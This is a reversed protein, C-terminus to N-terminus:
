LSLKCIWRLPVECSSAQFGHINVSGCAQVMSNSHIRSSNLVSGDEWRWGHDKRLGVWHFDECLFGTLLRMEQNDALVILHSGEALCLRMSSNWDKKKESFYYCHNGYRMWYDPCGPCSIRLARNSGQGWIWQYLLLSALVAALFGLAIAVLFSLSPRASSANQQTTHGSLAQAGSPLELVSYIVNDTM